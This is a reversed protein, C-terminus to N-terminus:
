DLNHKFIILFFFFCYIFWVLWISFGKDLRLLNKTGKISFTLLRLKQKGHKRNKKPVQM